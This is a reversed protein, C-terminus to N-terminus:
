ERYSFGRRLAAWRSSSVWWIINGGSDDLIGSDGSAWECRSVDCRSSSANLDSSGNRCNHDCRGVGSAVLASM